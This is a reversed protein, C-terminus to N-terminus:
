EHEKTAKAATRRSKADAFERRENRTHRQNTRQNARTGAPVCLDTLEV